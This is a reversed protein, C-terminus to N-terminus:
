VKEQVLTSLHGSSHGGFDWHQERCYQVNLVEHMRILKLLGAREELVLKEVDERQMISMTVPM